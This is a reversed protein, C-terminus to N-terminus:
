NEISEILQPTDLKASNINNSVKHYLLTKGEFPRMMGILPSFEQVDLNLWKQEDSAHLIIPMRKFPLPITNNAEITLMSYTQHELGDSDIWTSYIGGLGLLSQDPSTFYYADKSDSETWWLYFGNAPIICRSHRVATEWAPKSFVKESKTNFTKYRFVSSTSKAGNPVLGWKMTCLETAGDNSIIVPATQTPSINYRPKIGKPLGNTLDFRDTLNKIEHLTYHETM